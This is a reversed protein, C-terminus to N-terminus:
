KRLAAKVKKLVDAQTKCTALNIGLENALKGLDEESIGELSALRQKRLEEAEMQAKTEEAAKAAAIDEATAEKTDAKGTLKIFGLKSYVDLIPNHEYDTPVAQTEGPLVNVEGIGIPRTSLNEVKLAM